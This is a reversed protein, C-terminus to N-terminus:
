GARPFTKFPQEDAGGRDRKINTLALHMQVGCIFILLDNTDSM